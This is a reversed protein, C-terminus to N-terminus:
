GDARLWVGGGGVVFDRGIWASGTSLFVKISVHVNSALTVQGGGGMYSAVGALNPRPFIAM